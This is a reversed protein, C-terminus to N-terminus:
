LYPLVADYLFPISVPYPHYLAYTDKGAMMKVLLARQREEAQEILENRAEPFAFRFKLYYAMFDLREAQLSFVMRQAVEGPDIPAVIVDPSDHSAVFLVKDLDAALPGM